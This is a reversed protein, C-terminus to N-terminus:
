ERLPGSGARSVDPSAPRASRHPRAHSDGLGLFVRRTYKNRSLVKHLVIPGAIAVVLGLSFLFFNEHVGVKRLAIRSGASFFVHYLYITFSFGGIWELIQSRPIWWSLALVSCMGLATGLYSDKGYVTGQLVFHVHLAMLMVAAALALTVVPRAGLQAKFRNVGLGLLVYPALYAAGEVSFWDNLQFYWHFGAAAGLAVLFVRFSRLLGFSDLIALALFILLMAQLFWFHAYSQVYIEWMRSWPTGRNADPALQQMVFYLTSVVVLPVMLRMIKKQMFFRVSGRPVPRYAYVFGSLFAFLPMRLHMFLNTFVRYASDDPVRLGGGEDGIVHFAVLLLCALGRMTQVRGSQAEAAQLSVPDSEAAALAQTGSPIANM